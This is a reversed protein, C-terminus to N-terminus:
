IMVLPEIVGKGFYLDYGTAGAVPEWSFEACTIPVSSGESPFPTYIGISDAPTKELEIQFDGEGDNKGDCVEKLKM